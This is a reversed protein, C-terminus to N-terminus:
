IYNTKGSSPPSDIVRLRAKSHDIIATNFISRIEVTAPRVDHIDVLASPSKLWSTRKEFKGVTIMELMNHVKGM